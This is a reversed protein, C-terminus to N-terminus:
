PQYQAIQLENGSPDQFTALWGGWFQKEPVGKFRVGRASLRQYEAHIDPVSFSWGTFRGVLEPPQDSSIVEIIINIGGSEFSCHGPQSGDDTRRLEIVDAYFTAAAALDRVFLRVASLKV